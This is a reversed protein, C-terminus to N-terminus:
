DNNLVEIEGILKLLAENNSRLLSLDCILTAHEKYLNQIKRTLRANHKKLRENEEKFIKIEKEKVNIYDYLIQLYYAKFDVSEMPENKHWVNNIAELRELDQKITNALEEFIEQNVKHLNEKKGILRCYEKGLWDYKAIINNLAEKSTM